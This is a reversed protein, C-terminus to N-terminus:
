SIVGIYQPFGILFVSLEREHYERVLTVANDPNDNWIQSIDKRRQRRLETKEESYDVTVTPKPMDTVSMFIEPVIYPTGAVENVLEQKINDLYKKNLILM